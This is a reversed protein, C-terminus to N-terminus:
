KTNIQKLKIEGNYKSIKINKQGNVVVTKGDKTITDVYGNKATLGSELYKQNGIAKIIFPSSLRQGNVIIYSNVDAIETLNIIREDNISIAEAEALKLENILKLIDIAEINKKDDKLIIEVGEGQVNTKGININIQSLENDLIESAEQNNNIKEKYENIKTQTEQLKTNTEEYKIKWNSLQERLEEERMSEISTIDTEQVTKFQIFMTYVLVFCIIGIIITMTLKGKEM